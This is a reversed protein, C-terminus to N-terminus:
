DAVHEKPTNLGHASRLMTQVTQVDFGTRHAGSSGESGIPDSVLGFHKRKMEKKFHCKTTTQKAGKM